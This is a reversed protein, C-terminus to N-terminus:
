ITGLDQESTVSFQFSKVVGPISGRSRPQGSQLEDYRNRYHSLLSFGFIDALLVFFHSSNTAPSCVKVLAAAAASSTSDGSATWTSGPIWM